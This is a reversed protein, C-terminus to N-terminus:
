VLDVLRLSIKENIVILEGIGFKQENLRVELYDELKTDFSIIDGEKLKLVKSLPLKKSGLVLSVKLKIDKFKELRKISEQNVKM